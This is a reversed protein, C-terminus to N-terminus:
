KYRLRARSPFDAMMVPEVEPIPRATALFSASDPALTVILPKPLLLSISEITLLAHTEEVM